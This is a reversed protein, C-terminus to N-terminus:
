AARNLIAPFFFMNSEFQFNDISAVEAKGKHDGRIFTLDIKFLGLGLAIYQTCGGFAIFGLGM